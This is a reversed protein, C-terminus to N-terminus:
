RRIGLRKQYFSKVFSILVEATPSLPRNKHYVFYFNRDLAASDYDFALLSGFDVYDEVAIKSVIAFGLGNKVAQKIAETSQLQAAVTLTKPDIGISNLFADAEKRTGSGLERSIYPLTKLTEPPLKGSMSRYKENNPTIVVLRDQLFPEFVCNSKEVATGTIGIESDMSLIRRIVEGSDYQRISFFVNPYRQTLSPLIEPLIYQSPVTSAAIDLSGRVETSYSKIELLARNCLNLIELAYEYFIKGAESPYVEKTSRVLLKVGLEEELSRIHVSVTPQSLFIADAAKSFSRYKIIYVFAEIQKLHM